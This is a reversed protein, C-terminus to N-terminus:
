YWIWSTILKYTSITPLDSENSSNRITTKDNTNYNSKANDSYLKFLKSKSNSNSNSKFMLQYKDQNASKISSIYDKNVINKYKYNKEDNSKKFAKMSDLFLVLIIISSTLLPVRSAFGIWFTRSTRVTSM